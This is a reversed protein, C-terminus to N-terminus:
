RQKDYQKHYQQREEKHEERYQADCEKCKGNLGDKKSKDKSFQEIPLARGCKYCVKLGKALLEARRKREEKILAM